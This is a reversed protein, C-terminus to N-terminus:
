SLLGGLCPLWERGGGGQRGTDGRGLGSHGWPARTARGRGALQGGVRGPLGAVGDAAGWRAAGAGACALKRRNM